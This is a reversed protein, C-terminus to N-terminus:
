HFDLDLLILLTQGGAFAVLFAKFGLLNQDLQFSQGMVDQDPRPLPQSGAAWFDSSQPDLTQNSIYELHIAEQDKILGDIEQLNNEVPGIRQSLLKRGAKSGQEGLLM